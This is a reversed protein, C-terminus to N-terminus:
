RCELDIDGFTVTVDGNANITMHVRVTFTFITGFGPANLHETVTTTNTAQGNVFSMKFGSAGAGTGQYTIGTTEGIATVGQFNTHDVGSVSNGNITFTILTHTMGSFDVVEGTGGNLCPIFASLSIPVSFNETVAGKAPTILVALTAALFLMVPFKKM